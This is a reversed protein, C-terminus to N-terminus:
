GHLFAILERNFQVPDQLLAFHSVNALRLLRAGRISAALRQAHADSIIEDHQAHVVAVRATIRGLQAPTFAPERKWMQQLQELLPAWSEPTPSLASHELQCRRTYDTFIPSGSGGLLDTHDANGAFAFLREVRQPHDIALQLGVIAGDSWGVISIKPLSLADLVGLVDAALLEYSFGETGLSSRGHGRTDIAIARRIAAVGSFQHAWWNANALGGHLFLVPAGGGLEAHFLVADGRRLLSSRTGAPLIPTPPLTQWRERRGAASGSQARGDIPRAAAAVVCALAARRTPHKQRALQLENQGGRPGVAQLQAHPRAILRESM